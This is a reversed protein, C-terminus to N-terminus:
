PGPGRDRDRRRPARPERAARNVGGPPVRVMGRARRGGRGFSSLEHGVVGCGCPGLGRAARVLLAVQRLVEPELRRQEVALLHRAHHAPHGALDELAVAPDRVEHQDADAGATHRDGLLEGLVDRRHLALRRRDADEVDREVAVVQGGDRRLRHDLLAAEGLRDLPAGQHQAVVHEVGPAGDAGREVRQEVVPARLRHLERHQDVAAPALQRDVGIEHALRDVCLSKSPIACSAGASISSIRSVASDKRSTASRGILFTGVSRPLVTILRKKSDDVRVRELKSIASFRSDASETLKEVEPEASDFPSLRSSVASLRCAIAGSRMTM